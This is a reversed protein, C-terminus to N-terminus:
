SMIWSDIKAGDWGHRGSSEYGGADVSIAPAAWRADGPALISGVAYRQLAMSADTAILWSMIAESHLTSPAHNKHRLM